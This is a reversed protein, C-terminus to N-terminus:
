QAFVRTEMGVLHQLSSDPLEIRPAVSLFAPVDENRNGPIKADWEGVSRAASCVASM